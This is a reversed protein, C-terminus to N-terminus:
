KLLMLLRHLWREPVCQWSLTMSGGGLIMCVEEEGEGQHSTSVDKAVASSYTNLPSSNYPPAGSGQPFRSLFGDSGQMCWVAPLPQNICCCRLHESCSLTALRVLPRGGGAKDECAVEPNSAQSLGDHGPATVCSM